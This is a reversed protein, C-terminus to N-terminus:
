GLAPFNQEKAPLIRLFPAITRGPCPRVTRPSIGPALETGKRLLWLFAHPKGSKDDGPSICSYLVPGYCSAYPPGTWPAPPTHTARQALPLTAGKPGTSHVRLYEPNDAQGIRV